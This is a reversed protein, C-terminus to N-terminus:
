REKVNEIGKERWFCIANGRRRELMRPGGEGISKMFDQKFSWSDLM